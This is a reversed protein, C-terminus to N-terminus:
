SPEQDSATATSSRRSRARCGRGGDRWRRDGHLAARIQIRLIDADGRARHGDIVQRAGIGIEPAIALQHQEGGCGNVIGAFREGFSLHPFQLEPLFGFGCAPAFIRGQEAVAGAADM